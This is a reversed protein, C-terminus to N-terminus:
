YLIARFGFGTGEYTPNDDGRFSAPYESADNAARGGRVVATKSTNTCTELTWEWVNGAIDNINLIESNEAQGAAGAVSTNTVTEGNNNAFNGISSSDSNLIYEDIKGTTEMFKLILDWQFGFMLSGKTGPLNMTEAKLQSDEKDISVYIAEGEKSVPVGGDNGIEYRSVWFGENDYINKLVENKQNNYEQQTEFVGSNERYIDSYTYNGDIPLKYESTYKNINEEIKEYDEPSEVANNIEERPVNVWVWENETKTDIIVLGEDVSDETEEISVKGGEPIIVIEGNPDLYEEGGSGAIDGPKLKNEEPDNDLQESIKVEITKLDIEFDYGDIKGILKNDTVEVNTAKYNKVLDEQLNQENINGSKDYSGLMALQIKEMATEKITLEAAENARTLIGNEGFLMGISITALILLIIITIVLSILTIGKNEKTKM